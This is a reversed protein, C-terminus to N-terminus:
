AKAYRAVARLRRMMLLLEQALMKMCDDPDIMVLRPHEVEIGIVDLAGHNMRQPRRTVDVVLGIRDATAVAGFILSEELRYHVLKSGRARNQQAARGIGLVLQELVDLPVRRLQQRANGAHLSQIMRRVPFEHRMRALEKSAGIAHRRLAGSRACRPPPPPTEPTHLASKETRRADRGQAPM